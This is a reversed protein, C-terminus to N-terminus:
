VLSRNDNYKYQQVNSFIIYYFCIEVIIFCFNDLNSLLNYNNTSM